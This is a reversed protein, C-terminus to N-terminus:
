GDNRESVCWLELHVCRSTMTHTQTDTRRVSPLRSIFLLITWGLNDGGTWKMLIDFTQINIDGQQPKASHCKM